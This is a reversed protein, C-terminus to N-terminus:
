GHARLREPKTGVMGDDAQTIKDGLVEVALRALLMEDGHAGLTTQARNLLEGLHSTLTRRASEEMTLVRARDIGDPTTFGVRISEFGEGKTDRLEFHLGELRRVAQSREDLLLDFHRVDEDVWSAPPKGSVVMGVYELWEERLLATDTLAM